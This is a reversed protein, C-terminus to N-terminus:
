VTMPAWQPDDMEMWLAIVLSLLAAITSCLAFGFAAPTPALLWALPLKSQSGPRGLPRLTRLSGIRALM